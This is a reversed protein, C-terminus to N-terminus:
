INEKEKQRFLAELRKAHLPTKLHRSSNRHMGTYGCDCNWVESAKKAKAIKQVEEYNYDKKLEMYYKYIIELQKEIYNALQKEVMRRNTYQPIKDSRHYKERQKLECHDSIISELEERIETPLEYSHILFQYYKAELKIRSKIDDTLAMPTLNYRLAMIIKTYKDNYRYPRDRCSMYRNPTDAYLEKAGSNFLKYLQSLSKKKYHVLDKKFLTRSLNFVIQKERQEQEQQQQQEQELIIPDTTTM